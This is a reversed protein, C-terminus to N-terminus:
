NIHLNFQQSLPLHMKFKSQLLDNKRSASGIYVGALLTHALNNRSFQKKEMKREINRHRVTTCLATQISSYQVANDRPFYQNSAHHNRNTYIESLSFIVGFVM